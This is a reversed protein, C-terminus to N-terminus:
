LLGEFFRLADKESLVDESRPLFKAFDCFAKLIYVNKIRCNYFQDNSGKFIIDVFREDAICVYIGKGIQIQSENLLRVTIVGESMRSILSRLCARQEEKTLSIMQNIGDQLANGSIISKKMGERTLFLHIKKEKKDVAELINSLQDLLEPSIKGCQKLKEKTKEPPLMCQLPISDAILMFENINIYDENLLMGKEWYAALQIFEPCKKLSDFFVKKNYEVVNKESICCGKHEGNGSIMLLRKSNMVYYPFAGGRIEKNYSVYSHYKGDSAITLNIANQLLSMTDQIGSVEGYKEPLKHPIIHKIELETDYTLYIKQLLQMMFYENQPFCILILPDKEHIEENIMREICMYVEIEGECFFVKELDPMVTHESVTDKPFANNQGALGPRISNLMRVIANRIEYVDKGQIQMNHYERLIQAEQTTLCLYEEIKKLSKYSLNREGSIARHLSTREVGSKKAIGSVTEGNKELLFKLYEGFRSM